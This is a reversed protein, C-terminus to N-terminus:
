WSLFTTSQLTVTSSTCLIGIVHTYLYRTNVLRMLFQSINLLTPLPRQPGHIQTPSKLSILEWSSPRVSSWWLFYRCHHGLYPVFSLFYVWRITSSPPYISVGIVSFWTTLTCPCSSLIRGGIVWLAFVVFCKWTRLWWMSESARPLHIYTSFTLVLNHGIWMIFPFYMPKGPLM